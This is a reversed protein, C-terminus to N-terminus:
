PQADQPRRQQLEYVSPGLKDGNSGTRTPFGNQLAMEMARDIPVHVIGSTRNVWGYTNLNSDERVRFDKLDEAPSIQLRPGPTQESVASPGHATNWRDAPAATKALHSTLVGVAFHMVLGGLLLFAVIGFIWKANADRKEYGALPADQHGQPKTDPNQM